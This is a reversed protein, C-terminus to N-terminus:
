PQSPNYPKGIIKPRNPLPPHTIINFRIELSNRFEICEDPTLFEVEPVEKIFKEWDMFDKTIVRDTDNILDVIKGKFGFGSHVPFGDDGSDALKWGINPLYEWTKIKGYSANETKTLTVLHFTNRKGNLIQNTTASFSGASFIPVSSGSGPAYRLWPDHKHGHILLDFKYKNLLDILENGGVIVDGSGLKFREHPLPHHHCLALKLKDDNLNSLYKEIAELQTPDVKGKDIESQTHHFFVSNIVLIRVNEKEVFTFGNAWFENCLSVENIPFGKKIGKAITYIDTSGIHRSDVDHNGLTSIIEDVKLAQGIELVFGWGDIFGQQDARNAVDGPCLLYDIKSDVISPLIELLAQIPHDKSPSRLKNSTLYSDIPWKDDKPHYCHLDSM